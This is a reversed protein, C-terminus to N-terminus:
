HPLGATHAEQAAALTKSIAPHPGHARLHQLLAAHTERSHRWAAQRLPTGHRTDVMLGLLLTHARCLLRAADDLAAAQAQLDAQNLHSVVLAAICDDERGPPPAQELLRISLALAQHQCAAALRMQGLERAARASRMAHEWRALTAPELPAALPRSPSALVGPEM